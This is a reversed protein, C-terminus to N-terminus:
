YGLLDKLEAAASKSLPIQTGALDDLRLSFSNRTFPIVERVHQLNVLFSRHARFFGSSRLREELETLTYQTPLRNDATILFTRGEGTDAYLVEAPNILLVTDETKVPIKFLHHLPEESTSQSQLQNIKGDQLEFLQYCVPMLRSLDTSIILIATGDDALEQIQSNLLSITTSDCRIFPEVLLLFKPKHLIARGFSLRRRLSPSLKGAPKHAQDALGVQNLVSDANGKSLGHLQAQFRLNARVGLNKYVADEHFMVGICEGLDTRDLYPIIEGVLMTGASPQVKGTLLDILTEVGSGPQAWLGVIQGSAVQFSNIEIVTKGDGIKQLNQITLM